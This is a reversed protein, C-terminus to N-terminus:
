GLDDEGGKEGLTSPVGKVIDLPWAAFIGTNPQNLDGVIKEAAQICAHVYEETPVVTFLTFHGEEIRPAMRTFNYRFPVKINKARRRQIGTSEIITVGSVNVECWADLVDDLKDPDDLVMMVMYM